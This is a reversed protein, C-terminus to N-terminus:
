LSYVAGPAAVDIPGSYTRRAEALSVAPDNWQVLHTLVLRKTGTREAVEGARVGNLHVGRVADAPGEVFAAESLLLDVGRALHDLAPCDDTDGTYALTVRRAPDKESPGTIRMGYAEIPHNVRVPEIEFPGVRVPERDVWPSFEFQGNTDTAPDSGAIEALPQPTDVPGFLAVPGRPGDPHYRLYVNLVVVDAVHDSHLHSVALADLEGPDVYGHLPGSAGNGLDLLVRWTRGGDDAELLYSSAASGAHPFSGACGVVTLRM